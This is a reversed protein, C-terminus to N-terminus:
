YFDTTVLEVESTDINMRYYFNLETDCETCFDLVKGHDNNYLANYCYPCCPEITSAKVAESVKIQEVKQDLENLAQKLDQLDTKDKM